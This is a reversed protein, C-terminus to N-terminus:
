YRIAKKHIFGGFLQLYKECTHRNNLQRMILVKYFRNNQLGFAATKCPLLTPKTSCFLRKRLTM